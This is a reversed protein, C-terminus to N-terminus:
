KDTFPITYSFTFHVIDSGYFNIIYDKTSISPKNSFALLGVASKGPDIGMNFNEPLIGSLQYANNNTDTLITNSLLPFFKHQSKNIITFKIQIENNVKRIDNVEMKVDYMTKGALIKSNEMSIENARITNDQQSEKSLQNRDFISILVCIFIALLALGVIISTKIIKLNHEKKRMRKEQQLEVKEDKKINAVNFDFGGNTTSEQINLIKGKNDNLKNELEKFENNKLDNNENYM